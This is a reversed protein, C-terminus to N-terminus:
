PTALKTSQVEVDVRRDPALCAIRASRNGRLCDTSATMPQKEGMGSADIATAAVGRSVLYDGVVTARRVSLKQNYAASGLRDTHGTVQIAGYSAGQLQLALEDLMNMGENNLASKDFAFLADSAYSMKQPVLPVPVPMPAAAVPEPAAQAPAVSVPAAAVAVVAGDCPAAALAPTWEASHWCQGPTASGIFQGSADLWYGPKSATQAQIALPLSLLLAMCPAWISPRKRQNDTLFRDHAADNM